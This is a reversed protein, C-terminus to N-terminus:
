SGKRVLELGGKMFHFISGNEPRIIDNHKGYYGNWDKYEGAIMVADVRVRKKYVADIGTIVYLAEYGSKNKHTNIVRVIDGKKLEDNYKM